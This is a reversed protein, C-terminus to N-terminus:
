KGFYRNFEIGATAFDEHKGIDRWYESVPFAVVKRKQRILLSYLDTMHFEGEDPISKLISPDLVYIGANVFFSNRPKEELSYIEHNNIKVLGYPITYNGKKVCMTAVAQNAIHFDLLHNFNVTTLVDGNMVFMAEDFDKSLLNLAGATGKAEKERLYEIQVKWKSGDGFYEEIMEAKYNVSIFFRFFGYERFNEVITELIPKSGIKLLPKPCNETLHTLRRGLGGAMLIVPAQKPETKLLEEQIELGVVCGKGDIIPIQQIQHFDMLSLNKHRSNNPITTTPRTNMITSVCSDVAIGKLLGSRIDGDSVVGLLKGSEEIVLILKLATKDLLKLADIISTNPYVCADKWCYKSM